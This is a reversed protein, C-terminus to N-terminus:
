VQKNFDLKITEHLKRQEYIQMEYLDKLENNVVQHNVLNEEMERVDLVEELLRDGEDRLSLPGNAENDTFVNDTEIPDAGMESAEDNIIPLKPVQNIDNLGGCESAFTVSRKRQPIYSGSAQSHQSQLGNGQGRPTANKRLSKSISKEGIMEKSVELKYKLMKNEQIVFDYDMCRSLKDKILENEQKLCMEEGRFKQVQLGLESITLSQTQHEHKIRDLHSREIENQQADQKNKNEISQLLFERHEYVRHVFSNLFFDFNIVYIGSM